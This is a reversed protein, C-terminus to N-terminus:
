VWGFIRYLPIWHSDFFDYGAGNVGLFVGTVYAGEDDSRSVDVITLGADNIIADSKELIKDAVHQSKAEFVTGWMIERQQDLLENKAEDIEDEDHAKEFEEDTKDLEGFYDKLDIITPDTSVVDEFWNPSVKNLNELQVENFDQDMRKVVEDKLKNWEPTDRKPIKPKIDARSKRIKVGETKIKQDRSKRVGKKYDTHPHFKGDEMHGKM